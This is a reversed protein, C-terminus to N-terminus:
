FIAHIIDQRKHKWTEKEAIKISKGEFHQTHLCLERILISVYTETEQVTETFPMAATQFRSIRENNQTTIIYESIRNVTNLLNM